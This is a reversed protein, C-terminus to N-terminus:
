KWDHSLDTDSNKTFRAQNDGDALPHADRWSTWDAHSNKRQLNKFHALPSDGGRWLREASVVARGQVLDLRHEEMMQGNYYMRWMEDPESGMSVNEIKFVGRWGVGSCLVENEGHDGTVADPNNNWQWFVWREDLPNFQGRQLGVEIHRFNNPTGDRYGDDFNLPSPWRADYPNCNVDRIYLSNVIRGEPNTPYQVLTWDYLYISGAVGRWGSGGNFGEDYADGWLGLAPQTWTSLLVAVLFGVVVMRKMLWVMGVQAEGAMDGVLISAGGWLRM